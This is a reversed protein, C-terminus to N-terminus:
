SKVNYLKLPPIPLMSQISRAWFLSLHRATTFATIFRRTAYFAPIEQSASSRNAEWSPLLFPSLLSPFPFPLFCYVFPPNKFRTISSVFGSNRSVPISFFLFPLVKQFQPPKNVTVLLLAATSLVTCSIQRCHLSQQTKPKQVCHSWVPMNIRTVWCIFSIIFQTTNCHKVKTTHISV